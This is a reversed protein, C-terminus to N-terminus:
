AASGHHPETSGEPWAITLLVASDALAELEHRVSRDLALLRGAALDFVRGAARVRVRGSVTHITIRGETDHGPIRGGQRIAILVVRLTAYKILTRANHGTDSWAPERQLAAVDAALDLEAYEGAQPPTHPRM